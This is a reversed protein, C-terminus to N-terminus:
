MKPDDANMEKLRALISPLRENIADEIEITNAGRQRYISIYAQRAGNIRVVNTQRQGADRVEDVDRM